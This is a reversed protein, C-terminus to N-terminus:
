PDPSRLNFIRRTSADLRLVVVCQLSAWVARMADGDFEPVTTFESIDIRTALQIREPSWDVDHYLKQADNEPTGKICESIHEMLSCLAPEFPQLTHIQGPFWRVSVMITPTSIFVGPAPKTPVLRPWVVISPTLSWDAADFGDLELISQGFISVLKPDARLLEAIKTRVIDVAAVKDAFHEALWNM